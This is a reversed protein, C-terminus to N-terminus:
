RPSPSLAQGEAGMTFNRLEAVAIFYRPHRIEAYGLTARPLLDSIAIM